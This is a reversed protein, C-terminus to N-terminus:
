LHLKGDPGDQGASSDCPKRCRLNHKRDTGVPRRNRCSSQRQRMCLRFSLNNQRTKNMLFPRVCSLFNMLKIRKKKIFKNSISFMIGKDMLYERELSDKVWSHFDNKFGIDVHDARNSEILNYLYGSVFYFIAELGPTGIYMGPRSKIKNILNEVNM